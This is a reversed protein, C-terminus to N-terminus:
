RGCGGTAGAVLVKKQKEVNDAFNQSEEAIAETAGTVM